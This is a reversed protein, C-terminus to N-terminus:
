GRREIQVAMKTKHWKRMFYLMMSLGSELIFRGLRYNLWVAFRCGMRVVVQDGKSLEGFKSDNLYKTWGDRDNDDPRLVTVVLQKPDDLGLLKAWKHTSDGKVNMMKGDVEEEDMKTWTGGVNLKEDERDMLVIASNSGRRIEVLPIGNGFTMDAYEYGTQRFIHQRMDELEPETFIARCLCEKSIDVNYQYGPVGIVRKATFMQVDYTMHPLFQSMGEFLATVMQRFTPSEFQILPIFIYRLMIQCIISVTEISHLCMNFTDEVGLMHGMVAWFHIFAERDEACDHRIGLLHPRILAFSHPYM